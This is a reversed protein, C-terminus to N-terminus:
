AKKLQKLLTQRPLFGYRGYFSYVQENGVTVEVIKETAGNEEMWALAKRMLTDGVGIGRYSQSVFISEVCGLKESNVSSVLYGVAEETDANVAIDIRIVGPAAKKLLDAKRKAFTMTAFHEKFYTSREGMCRNLGKWLPEIQDLVSQDSQVYRIKPTGAIKTM